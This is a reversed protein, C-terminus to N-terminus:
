SHTAHVGDRWPGAGGALKVGDIIAAADILNGLLRPRGEVLVVIVPTGTAMLTEVFDTQGKPLALDDLNGSFEAFRNEGTVVIVIDAARAEAVQRLGAVFRRPSRM